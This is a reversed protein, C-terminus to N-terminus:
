ARGYVLTSGSPDRLSLRTNNDIGYASVNSLIQLYTTEIPSTDICYMQTSIIPGISIQKGFPGSAGSLTYGGQYNNCGGNGALTGQDSFIITIPAPFINLVSSGGQTAMEGLTWNGVLEPDTIPAITTQTPLPTATATPTPTPTTPASPTTCGAILICGTICVMLIAIIIKMYVLLIRNARKFNGERRFFLSRRRTCLWWTAERILISKM